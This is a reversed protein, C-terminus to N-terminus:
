HCSGSANISETFVNFDVYSGTGFSVSTVYDLRVIYQILAKYKGCHIRSPHITFLNIVLYLATYEALTKALFKSLM